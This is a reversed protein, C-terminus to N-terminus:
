LCACGKKFSTPTLVIKKDLYFQLFSHANEKHHHHYCRCCNLLSKTYKKTNANQIVTLRKGRAWWNDNDNDHSIMMEKLVAFENCFNLISKFKLDNTPSNKIEKELQKKKAEFYEDTLIIEPINNKMATPFIESSNNQVLTGSTSESSSPVFTELLNKFKTLSIRLNNKDENNKIDLSLLEQLHKKSSCLQESISEKNEFFSLVTAYNRPDSAHKDGISHLNTWNNIWKSVTKKDHFVREDIRSISCMISRFKPFCDKIRDCWNSEYLCKLSKTDASYPTADTMDSMGCCRKIDPIDGDGWEAM